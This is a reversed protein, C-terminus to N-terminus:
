NYVEEVNRDKVNRWKEVKFLAWRTRRQRVGPRQEGPLSSSSLRRHTGPLCPKHVPLGQVTYTCAMYLAHVNYDGSEFDNKRCLWKGRGRPGVMRDEDGRKGERV